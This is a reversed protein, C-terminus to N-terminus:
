LITTIELEIDPHHATWWRRFLDVNLTYVPLDEDQYVSLVKKKCLLEIADALKPRFASINKTAWLEQLEVMSIGRPMDKSMRNFHCISSILVNVEKPDAPSFMNNQFVNEPLSKVLSDETAEREGTLIQVVNELEPYGIIARKNEVAYFGCYKCIMQVFYPVDGSLMHIHKIAEDTFTLKNGLVKILEEASTRDIENIQIIKCGVLQGTIGYAPDELLADVDYTGAYIFGAKGEFSFQRLTHLFAPNLVKSDMMMKIFSFEDVFFMPYIHMKHLFDLTNRLDKARPKDSMNLENIGKIGIYDELYENLQSYLLYEWMDSASGFSSAQSLDWEFTAIIYQEGQIMVPTKDIALRLYNLISSKGTRTLGYLIYPRDKEISTYHKTLMDIIQKRGKFMKEAPIPGDNWPIEEYSLSAVPEIEVTFDFLAPELEKGQYIASIAMSLNISKANSMEPPLKMVMEQIGGSQIEKEVKNHGKITSRTAIETLTPTLKYGEATSEGCNKILLNVVKMGNIEVIYPPDAMVILQPLTDAIKKELLKTIARRWKKLLPFFFTRGYFTTNENIFRIQEDIKAQAQILLNTREVQNRNTYPTLISLISDVISKSITETENMLDVYESMHTWKDLLKTLLHFDLDEKLIAAQIEACKALREQRFALVKKLFQVHTLKNTYNVKCKNQIAIIKFIQHRRTDDDFASSITRRWESNYRWLQNWAKTSAACVAIVTNWAIEIIRSNDSNICSFFIRNLNGSLKIPTQSNLSEMMINLKLYNCLIVGVMSGKVDSLLNLSEIYYSCASDRQAKMTAINVSDNTEIDNKFKNYLFHGKYVAYFAVSEMYKSVDYSGVPLESYAKAAELFLPYKEGVNAGKYAQAEKLLKEAIELTPKGSNALISDNTYKHEIIDLDIMKSIAFSTEESDLILEGSEESSDIRPTEAVSSVSVSNLEGNRLQDALTSAYKNDPNCNLAKTVAILAEEYEQQIAHLRALETYLHSLNRSEGDTKEKYSILEIYSQKAGSYDKLSSFAQAKRLLLSSKYKSDLQLNSLSEEIVAIAKQLNGNRVLDNIEKEIEKYPKPIKISGKRTEQKEKLFANVPKLIRTISLLKTRALGETIHLLLFYCLSKAQRYHGSEIADELLDVYGSISNPLLTLFATKSEFINHFYIVVPLPDGINFSDINNLLELEIITSTSITLKPHEKTNVRISRKCVERVNANSAVIISGFEKSIAKKIVGVSTILKSKDISDWITEYKGITLSKSNSTVPSENIKQDRTRPAKCLIDHDASVDNKEDVVDYKRNNIDSPNLIVNLIDEDKKVILTGNDLKIAVFADSLKVIEGQYSGDTCEITIVDGSKAIDSIFPLYM